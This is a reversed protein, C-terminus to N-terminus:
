LYQDGKKERIHSTLNKLKDELHRPCILLVDKTDVVLYGELDHLVILKDPTGKVLCHKSSYLLTNGETVNHHSDKSKLDFLSNWSHIGAWDFNGLIMYINEAKELIGTTVSVSKCHSYARQIFSNEEPTLYFGEGEEFIEAVEPLYKRYATLLAEVHCVYIDTNWAFDGSNLFLEALEQQPKETFTKVKKVVGGSDYHYQIYRYNEEPKHPKIGVVLLKDQDNSAIEVAKRVDRVFAVEGLVIHDTPTVVIVADPDRKKIKHCAYAISPASNRRVPELLVQEPSLQPLQEHVLPAYDKSVVVYINEEPCIGKYREFTAKLLSRGTGLFDLFQKPKHRRSFPWFHSSATNGVAIVVYTDNRTM